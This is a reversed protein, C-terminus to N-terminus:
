PQSDLFVFMSSIYRWVKWWLHERWWDWKRCHLWWRSVHLGQYNSSVWVRQLAVPNRLKNEGEWRYVSSPFERGDEPCCWRLTRLRHAWSSNLSTVPPECFVVYKAWWRNRHWFLLSSEVHYKTLQSVWLQSSTPTTKTSFLSTSTVSTSSKSNLKGSIEIRWGRATAATNREGESGWFGRRMEKGLNTPIYAQCLRPCSFEWEAGKRGGQQDWSIKGM